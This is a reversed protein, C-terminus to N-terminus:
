NSFYITYSGKTSFETILSCPMIFGNFVRYYPCLANLIQISYHFLRTSCIRLGLVIEVM